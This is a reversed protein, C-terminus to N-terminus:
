AAKRDDKRDDEKRLMLSPGKPLSERRFVLCRVVEETLGIVRQVEKLAAFPADILLMVYHGKRSKKIKYALNLLGWYETGVVKGNQDAIIQSFKETLKQVENQTADQRVVFTLEYFSM